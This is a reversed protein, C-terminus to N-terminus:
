LNQTELDRVWIPSSFSAGDSLIYAPNLLIAAAEQFGMVYEIHRESKATFFITTRKVVAYVGYSSLLVGEVVPKSEFWGPSVIREEAVARLKELDKATCELDHETLM